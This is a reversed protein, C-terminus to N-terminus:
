NFHATHKMLLIDPSYSLKSKRLGELGMDEERNVLTFSDFHKAFENNIVAYAEDIDVAKEFNVDCVEDNIKSAVTMAVPKEDVYLVLGFMSLEDFHEFADKIIELEGTSDGSQVEWRKAVTFADPFTDINLEKLSYNKYTKLFKNIHNRKAHYKKGSLNQLNERLYIYDAADRNESIVANKCMRSILEANSDSLLGIMPEIGRERADDFLVDVASKLDGKTIPLSYGLLKGDQFYSKYYTDKTFAVRIDYKKRWLYTTAFGVDCGIQGSARTFSEIKEKEALTPTHFDLM